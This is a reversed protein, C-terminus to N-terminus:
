QICFKVSREIDLPQRIEIVEKHSTEEKLLM